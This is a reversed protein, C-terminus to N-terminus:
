FRRRVGGEASPEKKSVALLGIGVLAIAGGGYRLWWATNSSKTKAADLTAKSEEWRRRADEIEAATAKPAPKARAQGKAQAHGGLALRHYIAGLKAHEEAQAETWGNTPPFLTTWFFSLVVLLCGGVAMVTGGVKMIESPGTHTPRRRLSADASM